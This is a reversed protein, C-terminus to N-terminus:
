YGAALDVRNLLPRGEALRLVNEVVEDWRDLDSFPSAARHPSLVTNDLEHFPHHGADYPWRRGAEDPEPRYEWWTDLAAGALRGEALAAYLAAEDIVPGRAINVLLGDPGLRALEAAGILGETEATLPLALLLTDVSDLFAPLEAPGYVREPPPAGIEELGYRPREPEDEGGGRRLAHVPMRFGALMRHAHRAVAGYGLLGLTRGRLPISAADADGKRWAGERLWRDHPPVRNALALLLAVGGQATLEANGHGNVLAIPRDRDRNVEALLPAIHQVGAGPNILVRLRGAAELVARPVRWGVIADAGPAAALLAEEDQADLFVLEAACRAGIRAELRTRLAPPVEWAFLVRPRGARATTDPSPM